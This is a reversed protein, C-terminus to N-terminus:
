GLTETENCFILSLKMLQLALTNNSKTTELQCITPETHNKSLNIKLAPHQLRHKENTRQGNKIILLRQNPKRPNQTFQMIQALTKAIGASCDDEAAIAWSIGNALTLTHQNLDLLNM